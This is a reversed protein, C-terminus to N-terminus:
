VKIPCKGTEKTIQNIDKVVYETLKRKGLFVQIVIPQEPEAGGSRSISLKEAVKDIWQTNNELPVIAEKGDEGAILPTPGDVVGGKALRPLSAEKLHGITLDIGIAKGLGAVANFADIMKNIGSIIFNIMSEVGGIIKNIWEKIGDWVGSFADTVASGIGVFGDAFPKIVNEQIWSGISLLGDGIGKLLGLAVNGGAEEIKQTFYDKISKVVDGIAGWLATVAAGLAAGLLRFIDSALGSWNISSILQAASQGLKLWDTNQIWTTITGLATRVCESLSQGVSAWDTNLIFGILISPLALLANGIIQGVSSWNIQSVAGNLMEAATQGIGAFDITTFVSHLTTFLNNAFTGIRQGVDIGNISAFANNIGDGVMKGLNKWNGAKFADKLQKIWGTLKKVLASQETTQDHSASSAEGQEDDSVKTIEDFGYTELSEAAKAADAATSKIASSAASIEGFLASMISSIGRSVATVAPMLQQMAKLVLNIAPALAEGMQNKMATVSANLEENQSIYSSIVSRLRGFMGSAIRMGLSVVGINRISRVMKTLGGCSNSASKGIQMLKGPISAIGRIAGGALSKLGNGLKKIGNGAAQAATTGINKLMRGLTPALGLSKLKRGTDDVCKQAVRLDNETDNIEKQLKELGAASAYGMNSDGVMDAVRDLDTLRAEAFRSKEALQALEAQLAATRKANGGKPTSSLAALEAEIKKRRSEVATLTKEADVMLESLPKSLNLGATANKVTDYVGRMQSIRDTLRGVNQQAVQHAQKTKSITETYNRVSQGAGTFCGAVTQKISTSSKKISDKAQGAANSANKMGKVVGSVNAGIRVMLNKVVGM